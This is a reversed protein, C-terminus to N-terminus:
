SQYASLYNQKVRGMQIFRVKENWQPNEGYFYVLVATKINMIVIFCDRSFDKGVRRWGLFIEIPKNGEGKLCINIYM